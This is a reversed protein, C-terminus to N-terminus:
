VCSFIPFVVLAELLLVGFYIAMKVKWAVPEMRAQLLRLVAFLLTTKYSFWLYVFVTFIINKKLITVYDLISYQINNLM